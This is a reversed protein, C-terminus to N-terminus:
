GNTFFERLTFLILGALNYFAHIFVAAWLSGTRRRAYQLLLGLCFLAPFGYLRIHVLAFIGATWVAPAPVRHRSLYDHLGLRFFIEECVPALCLVGGLAVAVDLPRGVELYDFIEPEAAVYGVYQLVTLTLATLGFSVPLFGAAAPLAFRLARRIGAQEWGGPLELAAGLRRRDHVFAGCVLIGTAVGHLPVFSGALGWLRANSGLQGLVLGVVPYSALGALAALPFLREVSAGCRSPASAPELNCEESKVDPSQM